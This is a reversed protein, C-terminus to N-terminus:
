FPFSDKLFEYIGFISSLSVSDNVIEYLWSAKWTSVLSM